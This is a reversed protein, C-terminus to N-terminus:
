MTHQIYEFLDNQFELRLIISYIKFTNPKQTLSVTPKYICLKFKINKNIFEM